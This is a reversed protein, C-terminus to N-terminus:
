GRTPIASDGRPAFLERWGGRILSRIARWSFWAAVIAAIALAAASGFALFPHHAALWTLSIAIVDEGSSFTINSIPEPSPTIAIRAATKSGHAITAAAIGVCTVLAHMEPSLQASVAYAMLAAVPIRVFTHAINWVVDFGPIKDAVFEGAFLVGSAGIVWPNALSELGAPLALWHLRSMLGLSFVTAYVNLGAAFSLAIAVSVLTAPSLALAHM